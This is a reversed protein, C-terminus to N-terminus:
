SQVLRTSCGPLIAHRSHVWELRHFPQFPSCCRLPLLLLVAVFWNKLKNRWGHKLGEARRTKVVSEPSVCVPDIQSNFSATTQRSSQGNPCLWKLLRFPLFHNAHGFQTLRAVMRERRVGSVGSRTFEPGINIQGSPTIGKRGGEVM